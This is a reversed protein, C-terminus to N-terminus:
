TARFRDPQFSRKKHLDQFLFGHVSRDQAYSPYSAKEYLYDYNDKFRDLLVCDGLLEHIQAEETIEYFDKLEEFQTENVDSTINYNISM